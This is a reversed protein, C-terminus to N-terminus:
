ADQRNEERVFLKELRLDLVKGLSIVPEVRVREPLKVVRARRGNYELGKGGEVGPNKGGLSHIEVIDGEKPLLSTLPVVLDNNNKKIDRRNKTETKSTEQSLIESSRRPSVSGATAV